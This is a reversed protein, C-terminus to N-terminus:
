DVGIGMRRMLLSANFSQSIGPKLTYDFYLEDGEIDVEMCVNQILGPNEAEMATLELDHTAIFGASGHRLLQLMLARSGQHRDRSNTGKLIEDLLFFVGNIQGEQAIVADLMARLRRLEAYFSSASASLDDQTRMGTFVLLPPMSLAQACVPAGAQALVLNVGLSRLWTSKGAM